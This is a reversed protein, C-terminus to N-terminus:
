LEKADKLAGKCNPCERRELCSAKESDIERLKEISNGGFYCGCDECHLSYGTEKEM